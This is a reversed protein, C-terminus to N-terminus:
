RQLYVRLLKTKNVEGDTHFNWTIIYESFPSSTHLFQKYRSVREITAPRIELSLKQSAVTDKNM